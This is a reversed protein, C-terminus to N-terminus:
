GKLAYGANMNVTSNTVFVRNEISGFAIYLATNPAIAVLELDAATANATALAVFALSGGVNLIRAVGHAQNSAFVIQNVSTSASVLPGSPTWIDSM